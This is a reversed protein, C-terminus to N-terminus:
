RASAVEKKPVAQLYRGYSMQEELRCSMVLRNDWVTMDPCADCMSQRGDEFTDVPQIIMIGQMRIPSLLTWPRLLTYLLNRGLAARMGKDWLWALAMWVRGRALGFPSTYAMYTGFFFHYAVQAFEMFKPGVAGFSKGPQVLRVGFTWKKATPDETGNLYAAPSYLPDAIRIQEIIDDAGITIKRGKHEGYVLEKETPIENSGNMYVYKDPIAARFAIFVMSHVIKANKTAWRVLDPVYKLTEDYITANFSCAMGGVKAVMKAYKLRLELLEIENKGNWEPARQQLSDVHFTFGVVGAAKLDRMMEETMAHGNTNVIPQMGTKAVMKVIEVVQPHTLPDGGAISVSHSKRNRMFVNLDNQVQELTKHSTPNNQSYCGECYINCKKTPELWNIINDSLSWPLRYLELHNVVPAAM